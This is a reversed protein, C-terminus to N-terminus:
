AICHSIIGSAIPSLTFAMSGVVSGIFASNANLPIATSPLAQQAYVYPLAACAVDSNDRNADQTRESAVGGGGWVGHMVTNGAM